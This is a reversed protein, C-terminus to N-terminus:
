GKAALRHLASEAARYATSFRDPTSHRDENRGRANRSLLAAPNHKPIATHLAQVLLLCWCALFLSDARIFAWTAAALSLVSLGLDLAAALLSSYNLLSRSLWVLGSHIAVYAALSVPFLWAAGAAAAWLALVLVRGTREPARILRAVTYGFGLVAIAARLATEPPLILAAAYASTAAVLSLVFGLGAEAVFGPARARSM